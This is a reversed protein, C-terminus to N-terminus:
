SLIRKRLGECPLSCQRNSGLLHRRNRAILDYCVDRVKRPIIAGLLGLGSWPFSLNRLVRLSASSKMFVEDLDREWFVFSDAKEASDPLSLEDRHEKAFDSDLSAFWFRNEKDLSHIWRVTTSCLFCDGDFFVIKQAEEM